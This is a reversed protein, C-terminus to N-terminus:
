KQVVNRIRLVKVPRKLLRKTILPVRLLHMFDAMVEEGHHIRISYAVTESRMLSQRGAMSGTDAESSSTTVEEAREGRM